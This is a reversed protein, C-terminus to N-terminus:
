TLAIGATGDTQSEPEQYFEVLVSGVSQPDVFGFQCGLIGHQAQQHAVNLGASRADELAQQASAVEFAVHHVGKVGQAILDAAEGPGNPRLFEFLVDGIRAWVADLGLAPYEAIDSVECGLVSRFVSIISDFDDTLVGIHHFGRLGGIASKRVLHEMNEMKDADGIEKVWVHTQALRIGAITARGSKSRLEPPSVAALM